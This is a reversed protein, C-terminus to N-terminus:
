ADENEKRDPAIKLCRYFPDNRLQFQGYSLGSTPDYEPAKKQPKYRGSACGDSCYKHRNLPLSNGCVVCVGKVARREQRRRENLSARYCGDSCYVRRGEVLKGCQPCLPLEQDSWFLDRIPVGLFASIKSRYDANMPIVGCEWSAYAGPPVGIDIATQAQSKGTEHRRKRLEDSLKM